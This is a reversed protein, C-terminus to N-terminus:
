VPTPTPKPEPEGGQFVSVSKAADIQEKVKFCQELHTVSDSHKVPRKPQIITLEPLMYPRHFVCEFPTLKHKGCPTTNISTKVLHLCAPWPKGTTEMAKILQQKM